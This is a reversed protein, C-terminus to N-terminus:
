ARAGWDLRLGRITLWSILSRRGCGADQKGGLAPQRTQLQRDLEASHLRREMELAALNLVM